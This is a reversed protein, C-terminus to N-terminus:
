MSGEDPVRRNGKCVRHFGVDGVVSGKISPLRGHQPAM